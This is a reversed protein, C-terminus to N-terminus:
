VRRGGAGCSPIRARVPLVNMGNHWANRDDVHAPEIAADASLKPRADRGDIGGRTQGRRPVREDVVRRPANAHAVGGHEHTPREEVEVALRASAEDCEVRARALCHGPVRIGIVDDPCEGHATVLDVHTAVELANRPFRRATESPDEDGRIGTSYM